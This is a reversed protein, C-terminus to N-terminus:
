NKTLFCSLCKRKKFFQIQIHFNHCPLIYYSDIRTMAYAYFVHMILLFNTDKVYLENFLSKVNACRTLSNSLHYLFIMGRM